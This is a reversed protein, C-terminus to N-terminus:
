GETTLLYVGLALAIPVGWSAGSAVAQSVARVDPSTPLPEPKWGAVDQTAAGLAQLWALEAASYAISAKAAAERDAHAELVRAAEAITAALTSKKQDATIERVRVEADVATVYAVAAAVIGAVLSVAAVALLPFAGPGPRSVKAVDGAHTVVDVDHPLEVPRGQPSVALAALGNGIARQWAAHDSRSSPAVRVVVDGEPALAVPSSGVDAAAGLAGLVFARFTAVDVGALGGTAVRELARPVAVALGEPAYHTWRLTAATM